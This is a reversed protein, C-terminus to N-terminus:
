LVAHRRRQLVIILILRVKKEIPTAAGYREMDILKIHDNREPVADENTRGLEPVIGQKDNLREVVDPTMGVTRLATLACRPKVLSLVVSQEIM